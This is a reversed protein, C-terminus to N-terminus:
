GGSPTKLAEALLRDGTGPLHQRMAPIQTFKAYSGVLVIDEREHKWVVADFNRVERGYQKHLKPDSVRMINQLAHYDGFLRSKRCRFIAGRMFLFYRIDNVPFIDM